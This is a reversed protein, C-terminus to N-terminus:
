MLASLLSHDTKAEPNMKVASFMRPGNFGAINKEYSVIMKLEEMEQVVEVLRFETGIFNAQLVGLFSDNRKNIERSHSSITFTSM